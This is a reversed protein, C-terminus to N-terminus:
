NVVKSGFYSEITSLPCNARSLSVRMEGDNLYDLHVKGNDCYYRLAVNTGEPTRYYRNSETGDRFGFDDYQPTKKSFILNAKQTDFRVWGDRNSWCLEETNRERPVACVLNQEVKESKKSILYVLCFVVMLLLFVVAGLLLELISM